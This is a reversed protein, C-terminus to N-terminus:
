RGPPVPEGTLGTAIRQAGRAITGARRALAVEHELRRRTAIQRVASAVITLDPERQKSLPTPLAILIADVGRLVDYDTTASLRGGSVHEAIRESTVDKIYSEGRNLQAVRDEDVDVLVVRKGAGAFADALPVGVYGAGVVAIEPNM